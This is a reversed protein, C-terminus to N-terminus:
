HQHNNGNNIYDNTDFLVERAMKEWLEIQNFSPGFLEAPLQRYIQAASDYLTLDALSDDFPRRTPMKCLQLDALADAVVYNADILIRVKKDWAPETVADDILPALRDAYHPLNRFLRNLWKTYPAYQRNLTFCLEM